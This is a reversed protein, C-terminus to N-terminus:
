PALTMSTTTETTQEIRQGPQQTIAMDMKQTTRTSVIHGAEADFTMTGKGEQRRIEATVEAGAIPELALKAEVGVLMLRPTRPDPGQFTFTQTIALTGIPTPIRGPRSSWTTGPELPGEPFAPPSSQLLMDKLVKESFEGQQAGPPAADRLAKLTSEPFKIDQIEGTPKIQFTFVAGAMARLPQAVDEFPGPADKKPNNSDFEFPMFPPADVRMRVRDVRLSIAAGGGGTLHDVRWSLDLTQARTSKSERDMGRVSMVTKQEITYHLTEGAQFKWRVVEAGAPQARGALLWAALVFAATGFLRTQRRRAPRARGPGFLIKSM